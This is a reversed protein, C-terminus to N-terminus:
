AMAPAVGALEDVARVFDEYDFDKPFTRSAGLTSALVLPDTGTSTGGGSVAIVPIGSHEPDMIELADLGSLGPMRVDLFAVDPRRAEFLEIAALGDPAEGLIELEPWRAALSSRLFALLQPEDDALISTPSRV